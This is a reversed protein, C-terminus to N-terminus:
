FKMAATILEPDVEIDYDCAGVKPILSFLIKGAKNKKDMTMNKLIQDLDSEQFSPLDYMAEVLENIEELEIISLLGLKYSIYAEVIMGKAVAEGHLLRQPTDLYYTEIAHGITHGFNLIKRKGKELPDTSVVENKIKVSTHVIKTWEEKSFELDRSKIFEWLSKSQILAHKIVEAFGSKLEDFVLTKLYDTNIWVMAPNHFTGIINKFGLFDVGLKGGVSADVQSLLTTPVQIFRIGRMYTAAAFGGMDGIVGGGLNIILSHRDARHEVLKEWIKRCSDLNKNIEGSQTEILFYEADLDKEFLPLCDTKTNEDVIIFLKSANLKSIYKKLKESSEDIYVKYDNAVVTPM